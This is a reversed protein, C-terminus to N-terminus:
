VETLWWSGKREDERLKARERLEKEEEQSRRRVYSDEAGTEYFMKYTGLSVRIKMTDWRSSDLPSEDISMHRNIGMVFTVDARGCKARIIGLFMSVSVKTLVVERRTKASSAM